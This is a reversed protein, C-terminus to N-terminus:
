PPSGVGVLGVSVLPAATTVGVDSWKDGDCPDTGVPFQIGWGQYGGQQVYRGMSSQPMVTRGPDASQRLHQWLQNVPQGLQVLQLEVATM